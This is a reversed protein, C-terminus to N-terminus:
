RQTQCEASALGLLAELHQFRVYSVRAYLVVVAAQGGVTTRLAFAHWATNAKQAELRQVISAVIVELAVRAAAEVVLRAEM